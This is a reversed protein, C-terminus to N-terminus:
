CTVCWRFSSEVTTGVVGLVRSTGHRGTNFYRLMGVGRVLSPKCLVRCHPVAGLQTVGRQGLDPYRAAMCWSRASSM